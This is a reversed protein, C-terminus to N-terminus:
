SQKVGDLPGEILQCKEGFKYHLYLSYMSIHMIHICVTNMM